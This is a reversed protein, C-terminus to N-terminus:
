PNLELVGGRDTSPEVYIVLVSYNSRLTSNDSVNREVAKISCTTNPSILNCDCEAVICDCSTLVNLVKIKSSTINEITFITCATENQRDLTQSVNRIALADKLPATSQQFVLFYCGYISALLLMCGLLRQMMKKM